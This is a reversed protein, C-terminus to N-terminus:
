APQTCQKQWVKQIQGIAKAITQRDGTSIESPLLIAFGHLEGDSYPSGTNALPLFAVHTKGLPTANTDHGSLMEPIPEDCVSLVAKRVSHTLALCAHLPLPSRSQRKFVFWYRSNGFVNQNSALEVKGDTWFYPHWPADTAERRRNTALSLQFATELQRLRGSAIGRLQEPQESTSSDSHCPLLTAKRSSEVVAVRVLSSSHGLYPIAECLSVIAERHRDLDTQKVDPWIFQVIPDDPKVTPFYREKRGRGIAFSANIAPMFKLTGKKRNVVIQSNNDNVPVYTEPRKRKIAKSVALKPRNQAELWLLADRADEGFECEHMASVLASFLRPPHLPWEAQNRSQRNTAVARGTLYEVEIVLM